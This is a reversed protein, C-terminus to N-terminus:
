EILKDMDFDPNASYYIEGGEGISMSIAGKESLNELTESIAAESVENAAQLFEMDTLLMEGTSEYKENMRKSLKKYLANHSVFPNEEFFGHEELTSVIGTALEKIEDNYNM